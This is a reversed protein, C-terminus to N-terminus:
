ILVGELIVCELNTCPDDKHFLSMIGQGPGFQKYFYRETYITQIGGDARRSAARFHKLRRKSFVLTRKPMSMEAVMPGAEALVRGRETQAAATRVDLPSPSPPSSIAAYKAALSTSSPYKM